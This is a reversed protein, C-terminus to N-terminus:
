QMNWCSCIKYIHYCKKVFLWFFKERGYLIWYYNPNNLYNRQLCALIENVVIAIPVNQIYVKEKAYPTEQSARSGTPPAPNNTYKIWGSQLSWTREPATGSITAGSWRLLIGKGECGDWKLILALIMWYWGLPQSWCLHTSTSLKPTYISHRCKLIWLCRTHGLLLASWMRHASTHHFDM